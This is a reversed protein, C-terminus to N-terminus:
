QHNRGLKLLYKRASFRALWQVYKFNQLVNLINEMSTTSPFIFTWNATTQIWKSTTKTNHCLLNTGSANRYCCLTVFYPDIRVENDAQHNENLQFWHSKDSDPNLKFAM